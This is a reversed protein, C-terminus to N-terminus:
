MTCKLEIKSLFIHEFYGLNFCQRDLALGIGHRRAGAGAARPTRAATGGSAQVGDSAM